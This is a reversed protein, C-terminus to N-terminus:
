KHEGRVPPSSSDRFGKGVHYPVDVTITNPRAFLHFKLRWATLNHLLNEWWHRPVFEALVVTVPRQPDQQDIADIYDLLPRLLRRYPSEIIVLCVGLKLDNWRNQFAEAEEYDEVIHVATIDPSMSKAVSLAALGPRDLRAIPVVVVPPLNAPLVEERPRPALERELSTYHRNVGLMILVFLPILVLVLWAGATFKALGVILAVSGTTIAGAGNLAVRLRWRPDIRKLKWWHRVMGSQSLTFAAFVGVTYLPILRTVSGQFIVILASAVVALFIIGTDFSLRDGRFQLQRPLYQDRALISALRPFGAFATNAALVLLLATSFQVLYHFPNGNGVLTRTLQNVVTEQESPDPLIGLQTVLFSMGLFISGFLCGMAILVLQANRWEPPQFAPVGNSVAETGTLAVSGSAFARLILLLGLSETGGAVGWAAPAEYEPLSGTIYRFLGYGLLGFIAALYIYTPAAFITGSERLGRLNGLCILIIFVVGLVVRQPFVSPFISTIAAVGAAVSVAVTLVYDILLAGAAVLGPVRGLNDSAVIYSGGGSPYARLTQQYSTVVVALVVIIALTIPLTLSLAAIGALMLIRMIEETAYASSSINDSAFIALGKIKSLREHAERATPIPRGILLRRVARWGKSVGTPRALESEAILHGPKPRRFVEAYPRVIRVYHDGLHRGHMAERRILDPNTGDAPPAAGDPEASYTPYQQLPDQM